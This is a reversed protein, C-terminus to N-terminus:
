EYIARLYLSLSLSLSFSLFERYRQVDALVDQNSCM